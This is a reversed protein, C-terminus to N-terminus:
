GQSLVNKKHRDLRSTNNNTGLHSINKINNTNWYQGGSGGNSM